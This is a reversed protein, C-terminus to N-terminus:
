RLKDAPLWGIVPESKQGTATVFLDTGGLKLMETRATEISASEAIFGFRQADNINQGGNGQVYDEITKGTAPHNAAKLPDFPLWGDPMPPSAKRLIFIPAKAKRDFVIVRTTNDNFLALIKEMPEKRVDARNEVEHKAIRDYAIMRDSAREASTVGQAAERTAQAAQRFSENTFYFAIVTGVWTAFVPLVSTFIGMLLSDIKDALESGPRKALDVFAIALGLALVIIAASGILLVMPAIRDRLEVPTAALPPAKPVPEILFVIAYRLLAAVGFAIGVSLALQLLEEWVNRDGAKPGFTSFLWILAILSGLAPVARLARDIWIASTATAM